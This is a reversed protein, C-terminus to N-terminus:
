DLLGLIPNVVIIMKQLDINILNDKNMPIFFNINNGKSIEM